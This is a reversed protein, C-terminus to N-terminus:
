RWSRGWKTKPSSKWPIPLGERQIILSHYRAVEISEPLGALIPDRKLLTISSAKGHMLQIAPVVKGGFAEGIAQHGLCIGLIPIKGSFHRIAEESIGASSPYGPGPSVILAQLGMKEM